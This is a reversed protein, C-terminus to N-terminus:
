ENLDIIGALSKSYALFRAHCTNVGELLDVLKHSYDFHIIESGKGRLGVGIIISRQNSSSTM